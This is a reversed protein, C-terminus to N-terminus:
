SLLLWGKRSCDGDLQECVLEAVGTRTGYKNATNLSGIALALEM